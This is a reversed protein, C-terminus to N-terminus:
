LLATSSCIGKRNGEWMRSRDIQKRTFNAEQLGANENFKNTNITVTTSTNDDAETSCATRAPVKAIILFYAIMTYCGTGCEHCMPSSCYRMKTIDSLFHLHLTLLM